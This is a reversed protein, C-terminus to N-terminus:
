SALAAPPASLLDFPSQRTDASFRFSSATMSGMFLEGYIPTAPDAGAAGAAVMLPILHDERPHNLRAAPAQEWHLLAEKRATPDLNALTRRLWGDFAASPQAMQPGRLRLNHTSFGSGIILVDDDRLPALARGMEFHAAPDLSNKLSVQVVPVDADPYMPKLMSFTGHDYGRDADLRAPWGAQSLMERVQEALAPDGPAPYSIQYMEPPFGSYDFVMGPSSGSSITFESEEWHGSIVLVAKPKRPLQSPIEQLSRELLDCHKRM